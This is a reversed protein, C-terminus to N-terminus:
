LLVILGLPAMSPLMARLFESYIAKATPHCAPHSDLLRSRAKVMWAKVTRHREYLVKGHDLAEWILPDM